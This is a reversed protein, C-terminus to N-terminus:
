RTSSKVRRIVERLGAAFGIFGLLLSLLPPTGFKKDLLYGLGGGVIVAAVPIFPLEM